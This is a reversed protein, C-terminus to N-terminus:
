LEMEKFRRRIYDEDISKMKSKMRKIVEEVSRAGDGIAYGIHNDMDIAWDKVKGM